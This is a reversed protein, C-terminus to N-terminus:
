MEGHETRRIIEDQIIPDLNVFYDSYGAVRVILTRYQEPHARAELLTKQDIVNLQIEFGGRRMYERVFGMVAESGAASEMMSRSFRFNTAIGGIGYKQELKVYSALAATPGQRDMGQVAGICESLAEGRRRGDATAATQAGLVGHMIWAFYSPHYSGGLCNRYPRLCGRIFDYLEVALGDAWESDNGYKPCRNLLYQRLPERGAFDAMLADRLEGLSVMGKGYVAERVANLADVTSSFGPFCPYIYNYRAGGAATDRGKELCDHTFCSTLPCSAYRVNRYFLDNAWAVAREIMGALISKYAAFFRDFTDLEATDVAIGPNFSNFQEQRETMECGGNLLFEMGKITNIYPTAVHVNSCGIPTIEVCTSHIYNRADELPMGAEVLGEIVVRDNFIAPRAHGQALVRLCRRLLTEPMHENYCVAVSPNVLGVAAVADVFLASLANWVPRGERDVGGVMLSAPWTDYLENTKLYLAEILESAFDPTLTGDAVGKEYYPYLYQDPRGALSIDDTLTLAYQLFWVCQLAEYFDRAPHLPVRAFIAALREYERKRAGEPAQAALSALAECHRGAFCLLGDLSIRCARYFHTREVADPDAYSIERERQGIETLIGEIGICLVQEYDIVRHGTGGGAAGGLMGARRIYERAAALEARAEEPLTGVAYRGVLLERPDIEVPHNQLISRIVKARRVNHIPEDENEMLGRYRLIELLELNRHRGNYLARDRLEDTRTM